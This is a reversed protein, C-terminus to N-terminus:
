ASRARAAPQLKEKGDTIWKCRERYMKLVVLHGGDHAAHKVVCEPEFGLKTALNLSPLNSAPVSVTIAVCGLQIFPYRFLQYLVRRTAWVVGPEGAICCEMHVGNYNEYTVAAGVSGDVLVGLARVSQSPTYGDIREGAWDAFQRDAGFIVGDKIEIM